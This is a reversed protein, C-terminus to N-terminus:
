WGIVIFKYKLSIFQFPHQMPQCFHKPEIYRPNSVSVVLTGYSISAMDVVCGTGPKVDKTQETAILELGEFEQKKLNKLFLM